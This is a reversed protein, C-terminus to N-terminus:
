FRELVQLYGKMTDSTKDSSKEILTKQQNETIEQEELENDETLNTISINNKLYELKETFVETDEYEFSQALNKFREKESDTKMKNVYETILNSKKTENLEKELFLKEKIVTNYSEKLEDFEIENSVNDESLEMNFTNVLNDFKELIKEATSVKVADVLEESNDEIYGEVFLNLYQDLQDVLNEKFTTLETENDEQVKEEIQKKHNEIKSEILLGLQKVFDENFLEPSINLKELLNKIEKEM